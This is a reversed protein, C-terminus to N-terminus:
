GDPQTRTCPWSSRRQATPMPSRSSTTRKPAPLATTTAPLRSSSARKSTHGKARRAGSALEFVDRRGSGSYLEIEDATDDYHIRQDFSATWGAGLWGLSELQSRYTGGAGIPLMRGPIAVFPLDHRFEGNHLYVSNAGMTASQPPEQLSGTERAPILQHPRYVAVTGLSINTSGSKIWFSHAGVDATRAATFDVTCEDASVVSTVTGTVGFGAVDVTMGTTFPDGSDKTITAGITKGQPIASFGSSVATAAAVYVVRLSDIVPGCDTDIEGDAAAFCWRFRVDSMGSWPNLNLSCTEASNPIQSWCDLDGDFADVLAECEDHYGVSLNSVDSWNSGGNTSVQLKMGDLGSRATIWVEFKLELGSQGTFDFKPSHLWTITGSDYIAEPLVAWATDGPGSSGQRPSAVDDHTWASGQAFGSDDYNSVFHSGEQNDSPEYPFSSITTLQAFLTSPLALM